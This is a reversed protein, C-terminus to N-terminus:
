SADNGVGTNDWTGVLGPGMTEIVVEELREVLNELDPEDQLTAAFSDIVRQAEYHSRNFRRDVQNYVRVRIPNFLAAVALTSGAVALANQTPLLATVATVVGFFIAALLSVVIAYSVTRSIIRDIEYLRYRTIAVLIAIPWLSTAFADIILFTSETVGLVGALLYLATSMSLAFLFWKLQRKETPGRHRFQLLHIVIAAVMVLAFFIVGFFVEARDADNFASRIGIASVIVAGIGAVWLLVRSLPTPLEGSPFILILYIFLWIGGIGGETVVRTWEVDYTREIGLIVGGALTFILGLGILLWGITQQETKRVIVSGSVMILTNAVLGLGIELTPSLIAATVASAVFVVWAIILLVAGRRTQAM